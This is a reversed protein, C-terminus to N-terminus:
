AFLDLAGPESRGGVAQGSRDYLASADEQRQKALERRAELEMRSAEAAVRRDQASPHEPALAARKVIQAKRITAEPDNPVKSTDVQVEGEVAYRKGDPGTVYKFKPGGLAYPGAVAKHAQEHRRVEADRKKLAEVQKKQEPTLKDRRLAPGAPQSPSPIAAM